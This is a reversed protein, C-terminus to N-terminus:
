VDRWTPQSKEAWPTRVANQDGFPDDDDDDEEPESEPEARQKGVAPVPPMPISTPRPPKAPAIENIKLGAMAAEASPSTSLEENDSDSDDDISKDLIEFAMLGKVLEDNANLLGGIYQESEVLHIYRLIQRRLQKCTEFRRMVEANESVRQQERNILQLGNLLNTSAVNASAITELLQGKEKELNFTKSRGRKDKKDRKFISSSPFPASAGPAVARSITSSSAYHPESRRAKPSSPPSHEEHERAAEADQQRVIRSQQPQPRKTRPLEKHLAAIRELGPTGKYAVAWQRFLIMAKERVEADGYDDRALIRLRELLPEDAFTKQFRSGANHILADLIVLARIQRHVNGYKLKKRLARAAETPGSSQIRIVEILDVVGGIDNEEYQESTLRDIQVSVASFAHKSLDAYVDPTKHRHHLSNRLKEVTSLGHNAKPRGYPAFAELVEMSAHESANYSGVESGNLLPQCESDFSRLSM